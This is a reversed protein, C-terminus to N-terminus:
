SSTLWKEFIRARMSQREHVDALLYYSHTEPVGKKFVQVLRGSRLDEQVELLNCLAVGYGLRAANLALNTSFFHLGGTLVPNQEGMAMFWDKWRNQGDHLLPLRELHAAKTVAPIGHLLQPSCVPYVPPTDLVELRRGASDPKGYCIAVEIERPIEKQGPQVETVHIEIQPHQEHFGAIKKVAWGTGSSETCAVVLRGNLEASDLKLAEDVIRDFGDRVANLLREGEATLQIRNNTRLFLAVGLHSELARVQHSIAGHTVGLEMGARGMHQHRGAAEFARLASLPLTRRDLM